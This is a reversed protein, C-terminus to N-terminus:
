EAIKIRELQETTVQSGLLFNATRDIILGRFNRWSQNPNAPQRSRARDKWDMRGEVAHPKSNSGHVPLVKKEKTKYMTSVQHGISGHSADRRVAAKEARYLASLDDLM